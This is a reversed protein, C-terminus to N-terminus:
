PIQWVGLVSPSGQLVCSVELGQASELPNFEIYGYASQGTALEGSPYPNVGPYGICPWVRGLSDTMSFDKYSVSLLGNQGVNTVSVELVVFVTGPAAIEYTSSGVPTKIQTVRNSSIVTLVEQSTEAPQGIQYYVKSYSPTPTPTPAPAVSITLSATVPTAAGKEVIVKATYTGATSYDCCGVATYPNLNTGDLKQCYDPTINTGLDSRNCYFTYNIPGTATGGVYATLDIGNLPATGSSPNATLSVSLTPMPTPTPPPTPTPKVVVTLGFTEVPPTSEWPRSYGMSIISTGEKLAKFTWEENGAAGTSTSQPAIYKNGTKQLVSEDSNQTLTWSYGTTANSELTIILLQGVSLEVQRGSYSADVLVNGSAVSTTPETTPTPTPTSTPTPTPSPVPTSKASGIAYLKGDASGIYITGDTAIAPSPISIPGGISYTWKLSGDPNIAYLNSDYSGVYITGDAGIAPSSSITNGTRYSWKLSGDPNIALLNNEPSSVYITGDTGIAASSNLERGTAYSWKFSGDPSIAYLNGDDSGVYITGDAAVAPSSLLIYGGTTYIWKLSGDPNMAYLKRDASGVYITGDGGIAPASDITGATTYSWKLSGNPNIAYLNPITGVDCGIYITGDAGISPSGRIGQSTTYSWKLSGNPNLAYLKADDSGVYVTGDTAIAPSTAVWGGTTYSWKTSGDSNIAYLKNDNSGVYITGDSGIAPSSYFQGGTAYSWKLQPSSPGSYPSRGTHQLDHHFMPWPSDSLGTSGGAGWPPFHGVAGTWGGISLVAVGVAAILYIAAPLGKRRKKDQVMRERQKIREEKPGHLAEEIMGVIEAKQREIREKATHRRWFYVISTGILLLPLLVSVLLEPM